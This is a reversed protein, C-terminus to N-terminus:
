RIDRLNEPAYYWLEEFNQVVLRENRILCNGIYNFFKVVARFLPLM